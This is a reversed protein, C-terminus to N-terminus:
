KGAEEWEVEIKSATWNRVGTVSANTIRVGVAYTPASQPNFQVMDAGATVQTGVAFKASGGSLVSGGSGIVAVEFDNGGALPDTYVRVEKVAVKKSFQQSQTEYVGSVISGLGSQVVGFRYVRHAMSSIISAHVESTSYYLKGVSSLLGAFSAVTPAYGQSTVPIACPVFKVDQLTQAPHRLLRYLGQQTEGDWKGHHFIATTYRGTSKDLEPLAMGFTEGISYTAMPVGEKAEPFSVKTRGDMLMAGQTDRGTAYNHEGFVESAFLTMGAFQEYSTVGADVGNWYFKYADTTSRSPFTSGTGSVIQPITRTATIQLYNGDPTTDLDTVYLGSPLRPSLKQVATVAETSDIEGINDQNGFYIKGLFLTMPRPVGFLSAAASINAIVSPSSGDFNVKEIRTTSGFFIKETAGYFVMGTPYELNGQLTAVVSPSDLNPTSNNAVLIQRLDPTDVSGGMAYVRSIGAEDRFKMNYVAATSSNAPTLTLISVPQELWTLNGPRSYPDYGWSTDFKALGSNIDGDNRRTLPGGLNTISLTPM